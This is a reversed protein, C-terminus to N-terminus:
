AKFRTEEGSGEFNRHWANHVCKLQGLVEPGAGIIWFTWHIGLEVEAQNSRLLAQQQELVVQFSDLSIHYM